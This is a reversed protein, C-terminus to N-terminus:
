RAEQMSKGPAGVDGESGVEPLAGLQRVEAVDCGLPVAAAPQAHLAPPPWARLWAPFTAPEQPRGSAAKSGSLLGTNGSLSFLLPTSSPSLLVPMRVDSGPQPVGGGPGM